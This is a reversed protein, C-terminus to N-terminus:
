YMIESEVVQTYIMLQGVISMHWWIVGHSVYFHWFDCSSLLTYARTRLYIM